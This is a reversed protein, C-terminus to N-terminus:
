PTPTTLLYIIVGIATFLTITLTYSNGFTPLLGEEKNIFRTLFKPIM